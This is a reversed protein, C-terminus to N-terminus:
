APDLNKGDRMWIKKWGQDWIRMLSNLYKLGLFNNRLERFYSGPQEDRIRTGQNNGIGFEPTLFRIGSGSECCQCLRVSFSRWNWIIECFGILSYSTRELSNSCLSNQYRSMTMPVTNKRRPKACFLLIQEYGSVQENNCAPSIMVGVPFTICSLRENM